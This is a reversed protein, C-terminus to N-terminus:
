RQIQAAVARPVQVFTGNQFTIDAGPSDSVLSEKWPENLIEGSPARFTRDAGASAIAYGGGYCNIKYRTGWPDITPLSKIYTPVLSSEIADTGGAPYQNQDTAYAELATAIARIDAIARGSAAEVAAEVEKAVREPCPADDILGVKWSVGEKLVSVKRCLNEGGRYALHVQVHGGEGRTSSDLVKIHQISGNKTEKEAWRMFGGSVAALESNVARLAEESYLEKAKSYQGANLYNYYADVAESPSTGIMQRAAPRTERSVPVSSDRTCAFLLVFSPLCMVITRKAM